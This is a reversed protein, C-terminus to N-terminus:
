RPDSYMRKLRRPSVGLKYLTHITIWQLRTKLIGNRIQRRPSIVLRPEIIRKVSFREGMRKSFDYDEMIEIDKFGDLSEFAEKSVFIGNDGYFRLNSANDSNPSGLTLIKRLRLNQREIGSFRNNFGGGAFGNRITERIASLAGSPVRVTAHLFFLISGRAANAGANCQSSKGRKASLFKDALQSHKETGDCSGGDVVIIEIPGETAGLERIQGICRPLRQFENLTPIIISILM